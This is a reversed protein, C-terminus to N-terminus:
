LCGQSHAGQGVIDFLTYYALAPGSTAEQNPQFGSWPQQVLPSGQQLCSAAWPPEVHLQPVQQQIHAPPKSPCAPRPRLLSRPELYTGHMLAGVPGRLSQSPGSECGDINAGRRQHVLLNPPMNSSSAAPSPSRNRRYPGQMETTTRTTGSDSSYGRSYDGQPGFVPAFWEFRDLPETIAQHQRGMSDTLALLQGQETLHHPRPTGAPGLEPLEELSATPIMNWLSSGATRGGFISHFPWPMAPLVCILSSWRRGLCAMWPSLSSSFQDYLSFHTRSPRLLWTRYHGPPAM